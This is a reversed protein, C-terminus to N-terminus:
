TRDYLGTDLLERITARAAVDDVVRTENLKIPPGGPRRRVTMLVPGADRVTLEEGNSAILKM